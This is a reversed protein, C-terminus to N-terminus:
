VGLKPYYITKSTLPLLKLLILPYNPQVKQVRIMLCLIRLIFQYNEMRQKVLLASMLIHSTESVLIVIEKEKTFVRELKEISKGIVM